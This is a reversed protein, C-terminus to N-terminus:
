NGSIIIYMWYLLLISNIGTGIKSTLYYKDEEFFSRIGIILGTVAIIITLLGVIGIYFGTKGKQIYSIYIAAILIIVAVMGLLLSIIGKLSHKKSSFMYNKKM